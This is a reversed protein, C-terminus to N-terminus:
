QKPKLTPFLIVEKINKVDTLVMVLRDIGIGIGGNPPMGYEMAELYEMDSPSIAKEGKAGKKDEELYREELDSGRGELYNRTLPQFAIGDVM